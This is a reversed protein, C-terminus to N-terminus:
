ILIAEELYLSYIYAKEIKEGTAQEIAKKYNEIQKKYQEALVDKNSNPVFDTKYDVLVLKGEKNRYYLDIIGQVVIKEEWEGGYLEKAPLYLYFPKEQYIESAQRIEKVLESALFRELKSISVSKAEQEQLMKKAVLTDIFEQLEQKTYEKKLNLKQLVFHMITGKAAGTLERQPSLFQPVELVCEQVEIPLKEGKEELQLEKIRTVSSKSPIGALEKKAYEWEIIEKLKDKLEQSVQLNENEIKEQKETVTKAFEEQKHLHLELVEKEEQKTKLYTLELWDLYTKYQKVLQVPLKEEQVNELLEKKEELEKEAEKQVGVMILKEKARTLAVYLVRMEESIAEIKSATKIAEKALTNYEIQREYHIYKPGFGIDQHLLISENLDRFNFGKGMGCVFVIPFELGKSKHISMIRVVNENEGIIKASGLDQNGKKLREIYHVFHYLGKFSASEYEKAREFLMKLNAMKIAGNPTLSVYAGYGTTEYLFWIFEHLSMYEQKKQFCDIQELFHLIKAKLPEKCEEKAKQLATYFSANKEKLRIEILENDDFHYIPSRLVTVLAIDQNPNDIVKLLSLVTAIETSELYQSSTDSFVPIGRSMFEKEYIPAVGNAARLLIVMDKYTAARYGTKDKIQYGKKLLEEIKNAVLRAEIQSNEVPEEAEIEEEETKSTDIVHIEAKGAFCAATEEPNEFKAGLNLYEKQTYDIEGLRRSMIAQFVENTLDLVEKRSRFNKFLLIKEGVSDKTKEEPLVYEDYKDLFLKPRAQRFKYISQKVDGVMFLNNGKSITSLICDQILNSDQYEDIAIEEFKERYTKAVETASYSGDENKRLLIQLAFHEIDHFDIINKERKKEQYKQEFTLILKKLEVLTPHLFAIDKMAEESSYLRINEISAMFSEKIKSRKEKAEEKLNSVVKKDVPWSSFSVSNARLFAEEWTTRKTFEEITRKDESITQAFRTLGEKELKKEWVSLQSYYSTAEERMNELLITGWITQGFDQHLSNKVQFKEVAEELWEEPFPTSQVFRDIRFVLEKLADDGRYTAYSETLALFGPNKTEYLEEFVDEITEQRLLELESSDGMRFNPSIGIEYFHNRIVELCFAHITSISAKNMLVIQRQLHSNDPEEELKKYIAELIKERMQSAAANTFTVVLLRDIDIKEDLLKRIVREM